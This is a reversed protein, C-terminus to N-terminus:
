ECYENESITSEEKYSRLKSLTLKPRVVIDLLPVTAVQTQNNPPFSSLRLEHADVGVVSRRSKSQWPQRKRVEEVELLRETWRSVIM